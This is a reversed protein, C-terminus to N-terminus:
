IRVSVGSGGAAATAVTAIAIESMNVNVSSVIGDVLLLLLLKVVLQVIVVYRQMRVVKHILVACATVIIRIQLWLLLLLM